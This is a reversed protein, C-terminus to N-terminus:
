ANSIKKEQLEVEKNEKILQTIEHFWAKDHIPFFDPDDMIHKYSPVNVNKEVAHYLWDRCKDYDNAMCALCALNYGNIGPSASEEQLLLETAKNRLEDIQDNPILNASLMEVLASGFSSAIKNDRLTLELAEEFYKEATLAADKENFYIALRTYSRGLERKLPSSTPSASSAKHLLNIAQQIYEKKSSPDKVLKAILRLAIAWNTYSPTPLLGYKEEADSRLQLAKQINEIALAKNDEQLEAGYNNACVAAIEYLQQTPAIALAKTATELGEKWKGNNALALAKSELKVSDPLITSQSIKDLKELQVQSLKNYQEFDAQLQTLQQKTDAAQSILQKADTLQTTYDDFYEKSKQLENRMQEQLTVLELEGKQTLKELTSETNKEIDELTTQYTHEFEDMLASHEDNLDNKLTALADTHAQEIKEIESSSRSSLEQLQATSTQNLNAVVEDIKENYFQEMRAAEQKTKEYLNIFAFAAGAAFLTIVLTAFGIVRNAHDALENNQVIVTDLKRQLKNERSQHKDLLAKEFKELENAVWEKKDPEMVDPLIAQKLDDLSLMITAQAAQPPQKKHAPDAAHLATVSLFCILITLLISCRRM